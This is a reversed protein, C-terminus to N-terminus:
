KSPPIELDPFCPALFKLGISRCQQFLVAETKHSGKGVWFDFGFLSFRGLGSVSSRKWGGGGVCVGVNRQCRFAIKSYPPTEQEGRMTNACFVPSPPSSAKAFCKATNDQQWLDMSEKWQLNPLNGFRCTHLAYLFNVQVIRVLVAWLNMESMRWFCILLFVSPFDRPEPHETQCIVRHREPLNIHTGPDIQCNGVGTNWVLLWQWYEKQEYGQSKLESQNNTKCSSYGLVLTGEPRTKHCKVLIGSALREM